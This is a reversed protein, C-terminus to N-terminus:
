PDENSLGTENPPSAEVKPKIDKVDAKSEALHEMVSISDKVAHYMINKIQLKDEHNQHRESLDRFEQTLTFCHSVNEPSVFDEAVKICNHLNRVQHPAGAPIFVADGKCQAIAYGEVGYEKYLKERLTADLYWSQDHIPDHHPELRAGREMAVKNLLDRIKDADRAAYIHWLAGPVEGAERVRRRTIIDCGGEDIARFAEKIHDDNESDKPLGVYVLVNVADSVDLHLNTTGRSFCKASGYAIYMKPGLDPRVFCEPLRSALNLCGSRQTYDGLPLANMLDLFRTPLLEAFDEGPPWDKLKLLMPNGKEDKLRKSLNEFGDWFKRMPQNPVINDTACNILDNKVDGFDKIFSEPTWLDKDLRSTVNSVIVPQGRKWQEQFISANGSHNSDLLRLLKGECLWLHPVDPYLNKSELLTWLRPPLHERHRFNSRRKFHELEGGKVDNQVTGSNHVNNVNAMPCVLRVQDLTDLHSKIPQNNSPNNALAPSESHPSNAPSPAGSGNAKHAPRILLERLTSFNADESDSGSNSDDKKDDHSSSLAVDALWNLPSDDNKGDQLEKKFETKVQGNLVEGDANVRGKVDNRFGNTQLSNAVSCSCGIPIGFLARYEHAKYGLKNLADGAIIQTLMLNKQEHPQKSTCLLWSYEDRDKGPDGYVKTKGNKRTKYCDICVVFGCKGCAWHFNFLTTECVDCMERVGQVVRKWAISKDESMHISIAEKEQQLLDCFQDGVQDLLFRSMETSIHSPPSASNPLWLKIDDQSADEHPDSFGALALQGNKTYRLRRFAFFRCFISPNNKTRQHPTWRCERCKPLKPAAELCSGDQLFSKGSKKLLHFPPKQLPDRQPTPPEDRPKKERSGEGNDNKTGTSNGKPKRGRKRNNDKSGNKEVSGGNTKKGSGSDSDKESGSERDSDTSSTSALKKRKLEESAAQKRQNNGKKRKLKSPIRKTPSSKRDNESSSTDDENVSKDAAHGNLTSCNQPSDKPPKRSKSTKVKSISNVAMSGISSFSSASTTVPNIDSPVPSTSNLTIPLTVCSGSGVIDKSSESCEPEGSHRQLWAKKLKHVPYSTPRPSNSTESGLNPSPAPPVSLPPTEIRPKKSEEEQSTEVKRKPSVPASTVVPVPSPTSALTPTPTPTSAPTPLSVPPPTPQSELEVKVPPQPSPQQTRPLEETHRSYVGLDLPQQQSSSPLFVIQSSTRHAPPPPGPSPTNPPPVFHQPLPTYPSPTLPKSVLQLPADHPRHIPLGSSIGSTPKGYIHPPAPSSVKPKPPTTAAAYHVQAPYPYNTMPSVKPSPRPSQRQRPYMVKSISALTQKQQPHSQHPNQYEYATKPTTSPSLYHQKPSPSHRMQPKMSDIHGHVNKGDHKVIVTNKMDNMLAQPVHSLSIDREDRKNVMSPDQKLQDQKTDEPHLQYGRQSQPQYGGPYHFMSFNPEAKPLSPKEVPKVTANVRSHAPPPPHNPARVQPYHLSQQRSQEVIMRQQDHLRKREDQEQHGPLVNWVTMNNNRKQSARRLSEEFHRHVAQEAAQKQKEIRDREFREQRERELLKERELAAKERAAAVEREKQQKELERVEQERRELQHPSMISQPPPYHASPNAAQPPASGAPHSMLLSQHQVSDVHRVPEALLLSPDRWVEAGKENQHSHSAALLASRTIQLNQGLNLNLNLGTTPGPGPAPPPEDSSSLASSRSGSREDGSACSGSVSRLSSLGSDSRDDRDPFRLINPTADDMRRVTASLPISSLSLTAGENEIGIRELQTQEKAACEKVCADEEKVCEAKVCEEKWTDKPTDKAESKVGSGSDSVRLDSVPPTAAAPEGEASECKTDAEAAPDPAPAPATSPNPPPDAEVKVPESKPSPSRRSPRDVPSPPASLRAKAEAEKEKEVATAAPSKCPEEKAEEVAVNEGNKKCKKAKSVSKPKPKFPIKDERCENGQLNMQLITSRSHGRSPWRTNSAM